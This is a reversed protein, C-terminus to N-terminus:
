CYNRKYLKKISKGVVRGLEMVTDILRSVANFMSASWAGGQVEYLENNNLRM